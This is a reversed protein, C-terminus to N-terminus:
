AVPPARAQFSAYGPATSGFDAAAELRLRGFVIPLPLSPPDSAVVNAALHILACIACYDDAQTPAQDTPLSAIHASTPAQLRSLAPSFAAGPAVRDLHVHAFSVALQFALAFLALCSGWRARSRFWRM